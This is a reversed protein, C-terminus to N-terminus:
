ILNMEQNLAHLIMAVLITMSKMEVTVTLKLISVNNLKNIPHNSPVSFNVNSSSLTRTPRAAVEITIIFPQFLIHNHIMCKVREKAHLTIADNQREIYSIVKAVSDGENIKCFM